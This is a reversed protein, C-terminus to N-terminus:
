LPFGQYGCPRTQQSDQGIPPWYYVHVARKPEARCVPGPVSLIRKLSLQATKVEVTNLAAAKLSM